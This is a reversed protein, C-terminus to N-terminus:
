DGKKEEKKRMFFKNLVLEQVTIVINGAIWYIGVGIPANITFFGFMIPMVYLMTKQTAQAQPGAGAMNPQMKMLLYQSAFTTVGAIIPILIGPFGTGAVQSLSFTLFTEITDKEALMTGFEIAKDAYQAPFTSILQSFEEGSLRSLIRALNEPYNVGINFGDRLMNDPIKSTFLSRNTDLVGAMSHILGAMQNVYVDYLRNIYLFTQNMIAMLAIFIPMQILMPLCGALPNVGHKTYLTQIEQNKKKMAEPDKIGEYKKNIAQIEPQISQTKQMSKKSKLSFPLLLARILFTFLIITIGLAHRETISSVLVFLANIVVGLWRALFGIPGWPDRQIMGSLFVYM